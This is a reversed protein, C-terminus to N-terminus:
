GLEFVLSEYGPIRSGREVRVELIRSDSSLRVRGPMEYDLIRSGPPLIWTVTYPYEAVEPEYYDEYVNRGRRPKYPIRVEFVATSRSKEGRVDIYVGDVVARVEEGNILMREEDLFGQMNARLTEVEGGYDGSRLLRWYLAERDEYDFVITYWIVGRCVHFFGQGYLPRM